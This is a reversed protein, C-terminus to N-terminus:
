AEKQEQEEEPNQDSENSEFIDNSIVRAVERKM